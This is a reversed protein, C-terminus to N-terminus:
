IPKSAQRTDEKPMYQCFTPLEQALFEMSSLTNLYHFLYFEIFYDSEWLKSCLMRLTEM